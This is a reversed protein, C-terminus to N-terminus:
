ISCFHGVAIDKDKNHYMCVRHAFIRGAIEVHHVNPLALTPPLRWKESFHVTFFTNRWLRTVRDFFITPFNLFFCKTSFIDYKTASINCKDLFFKKTSNCATLFVYNEHFFLADKNPCLVLFNFFNTLVVSLMNFSFSRAKFHKRIKKDRIIKWPTRINNAFFSPKAEFGRLETM